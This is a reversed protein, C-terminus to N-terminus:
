IENKPITQKTIHSQLVQKYLNKGFARFIFRCKPLKSYDEMHLQLKGLFWDFDGRNLLINPFHSLSKTAIEKKSNDKSEKTSDPVKSKKESPNNPNLSAKKQSQVIKKLHILTLKDREKLANKHCSAREQLLTKEGPEPTGIVIVQFFNRSIFGTYETNQLPKLKYNPDAPYCSGLFFTCLLLAFFITGYRYERSNTDNLRKADQSIRPLFAQNYRERRSRFLRQNVEM